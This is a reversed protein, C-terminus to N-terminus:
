PRRPPTEWGEERAIEQLLARDEDTLPIRRLLDLRRHLTKRLAEKRFFRRIAAHNGSRLVEPVPRGEFVPPRTYVPGALLGGVADTFSDRDRSAHDGVAGPLLRAVADLLVLAAPEGGSLIYDGISIELDVYADVVRADLGLYRGAILVLHAKESLAEVRKQCLPVGQPSLYIVTGGPPLRKLIRVVPEPRMVMGAGGGYPIDDVAKPHDAYHAPDHLYVQLAGVEQAKRLPGIRLPAHFYEPFLTIIDVRM